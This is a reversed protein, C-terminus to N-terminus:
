LGFPFWDLKFYLIDESMNAKRRIVQLQCVFCVFLRTKNSKIKFISKSYYFPCMKSNIVLDIELNTEPYKMNIFLGRKGCNPFM